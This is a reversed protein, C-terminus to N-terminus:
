EGVGSRCMLLRSQEDGSLPEGPAGVRELVLLGAIKRSGWIPKEPIAGCDGTHTAQFSSRRRGGKGLEM